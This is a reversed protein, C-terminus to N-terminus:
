LTWDSRLLTLVICSHVAPAWSVLHQLEIAWMRPQHRQHLGGWVCQEKGGPQLYSFCSHNEKELHCITGYIKREGWTGSNNNLSCHFQSYCSGSSTQPKHLTVQLKHLNHWWRPPTFHLNDSEVCMQSSYCTCTSFFSCTSLQCCNAPGLISLGGM